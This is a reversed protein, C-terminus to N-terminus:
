NNLDFLEHCKKMRHVTRLHRVFNETYTTSYSGCKKCSLIPKTGGVYQYRTHSSKFVRRHTQNCVACKRSRSMAMPGLQIFLYEMIFKWLIGNYNSNQSLCIRVNKSIGFIRAFQLIWLIQVKSMNVLAELSSLKNSNTSNFSCCYGLTQFGKCSCFYGSDLINSIGIILVMIQPLFYLMSYFM